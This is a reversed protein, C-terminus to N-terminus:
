SDRPSPSTYLLCSRPSISGTEAFSDPSQSLNTVVGDFPQADDKKKTSKSIINNKMQKLIHNPSLRDKYSSEKPTPPESGLWKTEITSLDSDAGELTSHNSPEQESILNPEAEPTKVKQRKWKSLVFLQKEAPSQQQLLSTSNSNSNEGGSTRTRWKKLYPKVNRSESSQNDTMVLHSNEIPKFYNKITKQFHKEEFKKTIDNYITVKPIYGRYRRGYIM